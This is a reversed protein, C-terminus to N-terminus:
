FERRGLRNAHLDIVFALQQKEEREDLPVEMRMVEREELAIDMKEEKWGELAEIRREERWRGM